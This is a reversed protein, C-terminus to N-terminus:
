VWNFGNQKRLNSKKLVSTLVTRREVGAYVLSRKADREEVSFKNPM